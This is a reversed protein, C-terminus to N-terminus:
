ASKLASNWRLKMRGRGGCIYEIVNGFYDFMSIAHFIISDLLFTQQQPGADLLFSRAIGNMPNKSLFNKHEDQVFLLLALHFLMANLRFSISDRLQFYTDNQPAIFKGSIKNIYELGLQVLGDVIASQQARFQELKAPADTIDLTPLDKSNHNM